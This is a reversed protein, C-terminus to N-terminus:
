KKKIRCQPCGQGKKTRNSIYAEWVNDCSKCKWWVKRSSGVTVNSPTLPYNKDYDWEEALDPFHDLLSGKRKVGNALQLQNRKEQACRPCGVGKARNAIISEWEYGCTNCIWFVKKGSHPTVNQPILPSNKEYNWESAIHPFLDFFSGRTQITTEFFTNTRIKKACVPCGRGNNRHAISAQWSHGCTKCKWWVKRGNNVTIQEPILGPNKTYDWEECLIPNQSQLDNEGITLIQGSCHPCGNGATRSYVAANWRHGKSCVWNVKLKSYINIQDPRLGFNLTDDWELALDPRAIAVSNDKELQAFQELIASRDREINIDICIAKVGLELLLQILVKELSKYSSDPYYYYTSNEVYYGMQSLEKIRIVRIHKSAFFEDKTKERLKAKESRHFYEGDYEIGIQLKPVFVDLEKRSIKYRSEAYWYKKVYFLITQEPFSTHREISCIPCGTNKRSSPSVYWSHGKSCKWWVKKHSGFLIDSPTLGNNKEYDWELAMALNITQLDNEGKIVQRGSCYPCGSGKSRNYIRAAWEHGRSCIWWVKKNSNPTVNAPTLGENKEYNWEQALTPNTTGLDNYGILVKKNACYPCGTGLVKNSITACYSHSQACVWWAKKDSGCTLRDPYIAFENNKQWDWESMLQANDSVYKKEKKDAM